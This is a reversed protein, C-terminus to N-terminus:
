RSPRASFAQHSQTGSVTINGFGPKNYNDVDRYVNAHGNVIVNGGNDVQVTKGILNAVGGESSLNLRNGGQFRLKSAGEAYFQILQAANFTNNSILLADRDGTNFASARIIDGSLTSNRIQVLSGTSTSISSGISDINIERAQLTSDSISIPAGNSNVSISSIRSLVQLASSDSITISGTSGAPSSVSIARKTTETSSGTKISSGTIGIVPAALVVDTQHTVDSGVVSLLRGADLDLGTASTDLSQFDSPLITASLLRLDHGAVFSLPGNWYVSAPLGNGICMIGDTYFENPRGDIGAPISTEGRFLLDPSRSADEDPFNWLTVPPIDTTRTATVKRFGPTELIPQLAPPSFQTTGDIIYESRQPPVAAGGGSRGTPQGPSNADPTVEPAAVERQSDIGSNTQLSVELGAGKLVLDTRQVDGQSIGKEQRSAAREMGPSAGLEPFDSGLLASTNNLERLDVEVEQPLDRSAPNIIVMQGANLKVFEGLLAKLKITVTGEICTIKLFVGPQYAVLMTGKVSTQTEPTEVSVTERGTGRKGSSALMVGKRLTLSSDNQLVLDTKSGARAISGSNGMSVQTKAKSGTSLASGDALSSGRKLAGGGSKVSNQIVDIQAATSASIFVMSLVGALVAPTAANKPFTLSFM